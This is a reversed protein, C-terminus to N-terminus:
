QIAPNYTDPPTVGRFISYQSIVVDEGGLKGWVM